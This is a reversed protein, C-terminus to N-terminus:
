FRFYEIARKLDRTLWVDYTAEHLKDRFVHIGLSECCSALDKKKLKKYKIPFSEKYLKKTDLTHGFVQDYKVQDEFHRVWTSRLFFDDFTSNNFGCLTIQKDLLDRSDLVNCLDFLCSEASPYGEIQCKDVGTYSLSKKNIEAGEHPAMFYEFIEIVGGHVELLASLQHIACTKHNLGTTEVDFYLIPERM